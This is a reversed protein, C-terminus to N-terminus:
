KETELSVKLNSIKAFLGLDTSLPALRLWVQEGEKVGEIEITTKKGSTAVQDNSSVDKLKKETGGDIKGTYYDDNGSLFNSKKVDVKIKNATSPVTDVLRDITYDFTIKLIGSYPLETSIPLGDGMKLSYERNKFKGSSIKALRYREFYPRKLTIPVTEYSGIPNFSGHTGVDISSITYQSAEWTLTAFRSYDTKYAPVSGIKMIPHERWINVDLTSDDGYMFNAVQNQQETAKTTIDQAYIHGGLNSFINPNQQNQRAWGGATTDVDSTDSASYVLVPQLVGLRDADLKHNQRLYGDYKSSKIDVITTLNLIDNSGAVATNTLWPMSTSSSTLPKWNSMYGADTTIAVWDGSSRTKFYWGDGYNNYGNAPQAIMYSNNSGIKKLPQDSIKIPDNDDYNCKLVWVFPNNENYNNAIVNESTALDSRISGSIAIGNIQNFTILSMIGFNVNFERIVQREEWRPEYWKGTTKTKTTFSTWDLRDGYVDFKRKWAMDAYNTVLPNINITRATQIGELYSAIAGDIKNDISSNYKNIQDQFLNQLSDFEAKTIFAAGDNDGVLAAFGDISLLFM